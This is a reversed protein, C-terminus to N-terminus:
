TAALHTTASQHLKKLQEPEPVLVNHLQQSFPECDAPLILEGPIYIM